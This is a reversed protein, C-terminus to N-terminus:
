AALARLVTNLSDRMETVAEKRKEDFAPRMYPQAPQHYERGLADVDNYGFEVRRAYEINTGIAIAVYAKTQETYEIHISRALTGTVRPVLEIARNQIILGGAYVAASLYKTQTLDDLRIFKAYLQKDNVLKAYSAM